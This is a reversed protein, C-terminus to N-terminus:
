RTTQVVKSGWGENKQKNVIQNGISWYLTILEVNVSLSARQQSELVQQKLSQLWNQYERNATLRM